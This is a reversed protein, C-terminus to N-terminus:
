FSNCIQIHFGNTDQHCIRKNVFSLFITFLVTARYVWYPRADIFILKWRSWQLRSKELRTAALPFRLSPDDIIQWTGLVEGVGHSGWGRWKNKKCVRHSHKEDVTVFVSSKGLYAFDLWFLHRLGDHSLATLITAFRRQISMIIPKGIRASRRIESKIANGVNSFYSARM